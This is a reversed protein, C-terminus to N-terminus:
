EFAIRGSRAIRFLFLALMLILPTVLVFLAHEWFDRGQRFAGTAVPIGLTTIWYIALPLSARRVWASRGRSSVEGRWSGECLVFLLLLFGFYIFIGEVRHLQQPDIWTLEHDTRHLRLAIAIRVTNAVITTVYAALLAFPLTTWRADDRVIRMVALLLFAAILFNVGSCSAAILFTHDANMYGAYAEFTFTEGTVVEVLRTTPALVWRLGNVSATSYYFKLAGALLVAVALLTFKERQRQM